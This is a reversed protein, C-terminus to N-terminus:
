LDCGPGLITTYQEDNLKCILWKCGTAEQLRNKIERAKGLTSAWAKAHRSGLGVPRIFYRIM